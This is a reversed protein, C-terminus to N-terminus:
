SVARERQNGRSDSKSTRKDNRGHNYDRGEIFPKIFLQNFYNDLRKISHYSSYGETLLTGRFSKYGDEIDIYPMKGEDLLHRHKRLRRRERTIAKKNVRKIIKGSPTLQYRVKLWSLTDKDLRFVQTKDLNVVIGLENFMEKLEKLLNNLYEKSSHIIYTDDMYRGYYKLGKVIKCYNDIKSSYLLGSLQSLQSGIGISKNMFKQGTLLSKDVNISYKISDFLENMCSSYEEDSLYSVDVSFYSLLLAILNIIRSDAEGNKSLLEEFQSVLKDHHINDFFKRFDIFLVYGKNSNGNARYYKHLHTEFRKRTFSIGKGKIAAGNDYIFHNYLQPGLITDCLIRCVVRDDIKTAKIYRTKGRENLTFEIFSKQQYTGNELADTYSYINKLLNLEYRQVSEKWICGKKCRNFASVYEEADLLNDYGSM